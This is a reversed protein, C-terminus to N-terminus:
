PIVNVVDDRINVMESFSEGSNTSKYLVYGKRIAYVISNDSPAFVIDDVTTELSAIVVSSTQLGDISLYLGDVTGYLIRNADSPSIAIAYGSTGIHLSSWSTGEDTSRYIKYDNPVSACITIGSPSIDFYNVWKSELDAGFKSWSAGNDSSKIFGLNLSTDTMYDYSFGFTYLKNSDNKARKIISYENYIDNAEVTIKTWSNGGNTSRFIGGNFFQSTMGQETSYGGSIGNVVIDPDTPDVSIMTMRANALNCNRRFWTTGENTSKYIGSASSAVDGPSAVTAAYIISPNSQCISLDYIEPYGGMSDSRIGQRLRTWNTGGDTSKVIGNRETGVYVVAPNTPHVSLSRFVSDPDWATPASPGSIITNGNGLANEPCNDPHLNTTTTTQSSATTTTVTTSSQGCHILSFSIFILSVLLFGRKLNVKAM